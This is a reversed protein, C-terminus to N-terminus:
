ELIVKEILTETDTKVTLFYIAKAQKSLDINFKETVNNFQTILQGQMDRVEILEINNGEITIIDTTPNPYIAINNSLEEKISTNDNIFLYASGSELSMDDNGYAGIVINDGSISVSYGFYDSEEGDSATLKATETTDTWGVVPKTFVYASGSKSGMDDDEVAGIIINNDSLSVSVGFYDNETKDSAM